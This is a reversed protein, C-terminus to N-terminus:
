RRKAERNQLRRDDENRISRYIQHTPLFYQYAGEKIMRRGEHEKHRSNPDPACLWKIAREVDEVTTGLMPALLKPNVEVRSKCAHTFIWGWVAFVTPGAGFMSGTYMSQFSKGFM